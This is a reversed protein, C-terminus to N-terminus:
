PEKTTRQWKKRANQCPLFSTTVYLSQLTQGTKQLAAKLQPIFTVSPIEDLGQELVRWLSRIPNLDLYHPLPPSLEGGGRM